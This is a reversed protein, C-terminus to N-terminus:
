AEPASTSGGALLDQAKIYAVVTNYHHKPHFIGMDSDSKVAVALMPYATQLRQLWEETPSRKTKYEATKAVKRVYAIRTKTLKAIEKKAELHKSFYRTVPHTLGLDHSLKAIIDRLDAAFSVQRPPVARMFEHPMSTFLEAWAIDRLTAKVADTILNGFTNQRWTKYPIGHEIDEPKVPFKETIKYGYITPWDLGCEKLLTKDQAMDSLSIEGTPCFESIIVYVHETKPPATRNWSESRPCSDKIRAALTFTRAMHKQNPPYRTKGSVSYYSWSARTSLPSIPVGSLGATKALAEIETKVQEYTFGEKPVALVDHIHQFHWGRLTRTMDDQILIGVDQKINVRVVNDFAHNVLRFSKPTGDRTEKNFLLVGTETWFHFEKPLPFKLVSHMFTAKMRRDWDTVKPKSLTSLADTVYEDLLAQIQNTLTAITSETYQLEERSASFEVSGIPLYVGGSLHGLADWLGKEIMAEKLQELNLRYPICGMVAIWERKETERIFGKSMGKPLDPLTLNIIPQPSFYRFLGQAERNFEDVDKSKAALQIEIGTEGGCPEEHVKQMEGKNSKDLVAIYVSKTGQHWSTVTFSDAYAFGAKCNHLIFDSVYSEDEDVSFNYVTTDLPVEKVEKIPRLLYDGQRMIYSWRAHRNFQISWRDPYDELTGVTGWKDHLVAMLTRVGWALDPSAVGFTFRSRTLSGDGDFVGDLFGRRLTEPGQMVPVPVHKNHAGHGCLNGLLVALATHHCIVELLNKGPRSFLSSEARFYKQLLRQIAAALDVEDVHLSFVVQKTTASGEAAFIGLLWGLDYDDLDLYLPFDPWTTTRNDGSCPHPASGQTKQTLVGSVNEFSEDLHDLVKLTSVNTELTAPLMAYSHWAGIGKKNSRYGAKVEGPLQWSHCGENDSILIPHEETLVLPKGGQSLHIEYGRGRYPRTMVKTVQRFRGKHTLVWDGVTVNEIPTVGERTVIPQGALLCGIGLMGAADNTDRKTSEGYQTYLYLVDHQSLGRGFDRIKLTPRMMTPLTVHIPRNPQGSQQHEDWANCGYERLVALVKRSYLTSRLIGMIHAAHDQSIGFSAKTMLGTTTVERQVAATQM